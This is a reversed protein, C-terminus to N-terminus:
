WWAVLRRGGIWHIPLDEFADEVGYGIHTMEMSVLGILAGPVVYSVLALSSTTTVPDMGFIPMSSGSIMYQMMTVTVAALAVPILSRPRLEFLLLEVALVVTAV